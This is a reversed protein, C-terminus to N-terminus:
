SIPHETSNFTYGNRFILRVDHEFEQVDRYAGAKLKKQSYMNKVDDYTLSCIYCTEKYSATGLDMPNKIILPYHPMNLAVSDVPELFPRAAWHVVLKHSISGM